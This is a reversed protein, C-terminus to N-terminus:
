VSIPMISWRKSYLEIIQEESLSMDTCLFAIWKKKNEKDRVFVIRSVMSDGKSNHICVVVSLLYKSKGPRKKHMDYLEKLTYMIGDHSYFTRSNKMRGISHYGIDYISMVFTPHTFWSDFLVHKAPMGYRKADRLMTLAVDPAKMVAQKKAKAGCTRSDTNRSENYRQKKDTSSMHRFATPIFTAGDTWGLFLSRCGRKYTRDTHDFVCAALELKKSFPKHYLTDDLILATLRTESTLTNIWLCVKSAVSIIFVSWNIFTSRMLRYVTDSSSGIVSKDGNRSDRYMSFQMYVLQVAYQMISLASFGKQKYANAKKLANGISFKTFFRQISAILDQELLVNDPISKM